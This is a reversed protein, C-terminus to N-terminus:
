EHNSSLRRFANKSIIDSGEPKTFLFRNLPFEYSITNMKAPSSRDNFGSFSNGYIVDVHSFVNLISNLDNSHGLTRTRMRLEHIGELEHLGPFGFNLAERGAIAIQKEFYVRAQNLALYMTPEIWEKSIWYDFCATKFSLATRYIENVLYGQLSSTEIDSNIVLFEIFLRAAKAEM